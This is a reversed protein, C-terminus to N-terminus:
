ISKPMARVIAFSLSLPVNAFPVKCYMAGSYAATNNGIGEDTVSVCDNGVSLLKFYYKDRRLCRVCDSFLLASTYENPTNIANMNHFGLCLSDQGCYLSRLLGPQFASTISPDNRGFIFGKFIGSAKVISCSRGANMFFPIHFLSGVFRGSKSCTIINKFLHISDIQSVITIIKLCLNQSKM